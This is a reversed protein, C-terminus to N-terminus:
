AAGGMIAAVGGFANSLVAALIGARRTV